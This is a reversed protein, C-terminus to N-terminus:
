RFDHRLTLALHWIPGGADLSGVADERNAKAHRRAGLLNLQGALDITLPADHLALPDPFSYGVGIGVQHADSDLANSRGTQAPLPTPQLAYGARLAWAEAVRWEVGLRPGVTDVADLDVPASDAELAGLGLPAGDVTIDFRATPDPALSWRSWVVDLTLTLPRVPDWAAAWTFQQPTYLSTGTIHAVLRGVGEIGIDTVLDYRLQLADRFSFGLRLTDWPRVLLGAILGSDAHVDVELDRRTFRQTLLDLDVTASGDLSGLIQYGVGISVTEHLEFAAGLVLALKDPLAGYRYFHPTEAEVADIRTVQITPLYLGAGLAFRNDVLGGLPFLLGLQIGVNTQPLRDVPAEEGPATDHEIALRPVILTLGTGVHPSKHVTLTAPNYFVGTYDDAFAAHANAMAAARAGFGYADFVSARAGGGSLAAAVAAAVVFSPTRM